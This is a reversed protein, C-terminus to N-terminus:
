TITSIPESMTTLIIIERIICLRVEERLHELNIDYVLSIPLTLVLIYKSFCITTCIKKCIKTNRPKGEKIKKILLLQM